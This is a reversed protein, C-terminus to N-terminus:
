ESENIKAIKEEVGLNNFKDLLQMAEELSSKANRGIDRRSRYQRQGCVFALRGPM